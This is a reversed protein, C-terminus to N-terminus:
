GSMQCNTKQKLHTGLCYIKRVGYTDGMSFPLFIFVRLTQLCRQCAGLRVGKNMRDINETEFDAKLTRNSRAECSDLVNILSPLNIILSQPIKILEIAIM